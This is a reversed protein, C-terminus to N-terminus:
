VISLWEHDIAFHNDLDSVQEAVENNQAPPSDTLADHFGDQAVQQTPKPIDAQHEAASALAEDMVFLPAILKEFPTESTEADSAAVTFDHLISWPGTSTSSIARVWVRYDSATLATAPTFSTSILGTERIVNATNTTQNNVQMEYAVANTVPQWTFTPTTDSTTGRPTLLKTRANTNFQTPTSWAGIGNASVPRISWTWDSNALPTSPTWTTGTIATEFIATTGSHLYLEYSSAGSTPQWSFLVPTTNFTPSAPGIPTTLLATTTTNVSFQVSSGWVPSGDPLTTRIWVKYEGNDLTRSRISNSTIGTDRYLVGPTGVKTVYVEYFAANPVESWILTPINDTTVSNRAPSTLKTRGGTSFESPDSWPGLYDTGNVLRIPRVWWKYDNRALPTSPTLSVTSGNGVPTVTSVVPSGPVNIFVQYGTAGRVKNWTLTPQSDTTSGIPFLQPKVNVIFTHGQDQKKLVSNPMNAEVFVRYRAFELDQPIVVSTQSASVNLQTFVNGGFGAINVYVNYSLAGSVPTWSVTPRLTTIAGVPGAVIFATTTDDDITVVDLTKDALSDYANDSAPDDVSLTVMTTQNGDVNSDNVGNVNVTQPTNWNASTFTLATKDVTAETVDGSRVNIVVNSAPQTDLVVTFTETSGAETVTPAVSGPTVTFGPLRQLFTLVVDNGSGGAYSIRFQRGVAVFTAGEALTQGGFNFTGTIASTSAILNVITFTDNVAPTYTGLNLQLDANGLNVTRSDGFIRVQDYETAAPGSIDFTALVNKPFAVDVNAFEVVDPGAEGTLVAGPSDSNLTDRSGGGLIQDDGGAGLIYDIGDGGRLVNIGADGIIANGNAGGAVNEIDDSLTLQLNNGTDVTQQAGVTRLDIGVTTFDTPSFDLTDTGENANETITDSGIIDDVDFVYVDDGPGGASTDDGLGGILTDNAPGGTLRDNGGEGNVTLALTGNEGALIDNGEGLNVTLNQLAATLGSLDQPRVTDIGDGSNLTLGTVNRAIVTSGGITAVELSGVATTSNRIFVEEDGTSGNVILTNSGTGADIDVLRSPATVEVSDDGGTSRVLIDGTFASLPVTVTHTGTGTAGAVDTTLKQQADSIVVDTSTTTIVFANSQGIASIDELILDNGALEINFNTNFAVFSTAATIGSSESTSQFRQSLATVSSGTVEAIWSSYSTVRTNYAFDGLSLAQHTGGSAVSTLYYTGDQVVFQPSGSDGPVTTAEDASDYVWTVLNRSLGDVATTGSRKTGFAEDGPHPGFGVLTLESGTQLRGQWLEVAAVDVVPRNLKLIALDNGDDTGLFGYSYDPHVTVQDLGYSTGGVTFKLTSIDKGDVLHAATLVYESGILTGGGHSRGNTSIVGVADFGTTVESNGATAEGDLWQRILDAQADEASRSDSTEQTGYRIFYEDSSAFHNVLWERGNDQLLRAFDVVEFQGGNRRLLTAILEEAVISSAEDSAHLANVIESRPVGDELLDVEIELESDTPLRGFLDEFMATVFLDYSDGGRSSFYEDSAMVAPLVEDLSPVDGFSISDSENWSDLEETTASRNLLREYVGSIYADRYERDAQLTQVANIRNIQFEQENEFSDLETQTANRGLTDRYLQAIFADSPNDTVVGNVRIDISETLHAPDPLNLIPNFGAITFAFAGEGDVNLAPIFAASRLQELTYVGDIEAVTGDSFQVDGLGQDPVATVTYVLSPEKDSPPAYDINELGLSGAIVNELMTSETPPAVIQTPPNNLSAVTLTVAPAEGDLAGAQMMIHIVRPDTTPAESVNEYTISRIVAEYEALSARGTLLLQGLEVDFEGDISTPTDDPDTSGTDDRFPTFELFDEGAVYGEISIAAGDLMVTGRGEAAAADQQTIAFTGAVVIAAGGENFTQETVDIGITPAVYETDVSILLSAPDSVKTGDQIQLELQRLGPIPNTRTNMYQISRLASEYNAVFTTGRLTLMGTAEDFTGTIGHQPTYILRDQDAQYDWSFAVTAGTLLTNGKYMVAIGADIVESSRGHKYVLTEFGTEVVPLAEAQVTMTQTTGKTFGDHITFSITRAVGDRVMSRNSYTVQQLMYEYWDVPVEGTISLVGTMLDYSSDMGVPLGEVRLFDDGPMFNGTIAVDVGLLTDVVMDNDILTLNPALVFNGDDNSATVASTPLGGLTVGQLSTSASVVLLRQHATASSNMANGDSATISIERIGPTASTSTNRYKVRLLAASYDAASATGNLQLRGLLGNFTGTIGDAVEYSLVDEGQQYTTADLTVTLSELTPSDSDRVTISPLLGIDAGSGAIYTEGMGAEVIPAQNVATIRVKVGAKGINSSRDGLKVTLMREGTGNSCFSVLGIAQRYQDIRGFGTLHLVGKVADFSAEIGLEQQDLINLELVDKGAEFGGIAITASNIYGSAASSIQVDELLVAHGSGQEYSVPMFDVGDASGVTLARPKLTTSATLREIYFEPYRNVSVSFTDEFFANEIPEYTLGDLVNNINAATGILTVSGTGDGTVEVNDFVTTTVTTSTGNLLSDTLGQADESTVKGDGNVDYFGSGGLSSRQMPLTGDDGQMADMNLMTIIQLADSVSTEGDDDVDNPDGINQWPTAKQPDLTLFGNGTHLTVVLEADADHVALPDTVTVANGTNDSFVLPQNAGFTQETPLAITPTLNPPTIAASYSTYVPINSGDSILGYVYLKQNPDYPVSAFTAMDDWDFTQLGDQFALGGAILHGNFGSDVTDVFLDITTNEPLQSTGTYTITAGAGNMDATLSDISLEPAPVETFADLADFNGESLPVLFDLDRAGPLYFGFRKTFLAKAYGDVRGAFNVTVEFEALTVDGSVRVYSNERRQTPRIQLYIGFNGLSEGGILPVPDPVYFGLNANLTINFDRDMKFSMNGRFIGGPYLSFSASVDVVEKGKFFITISGSGEGMIGELLDVDGRIIMRDKNIDISGEITVLARTQGFIKVSPGVTGTVKAKIQFNDLDDLNDIEGEISNLFVVPPHGLPIGPSREVKFGIKKLRNNKVVVEAGVTLGAPLTIEGSGSITTNGQADVEYIFGLDRIELTGFTVDQVRLELGKIQVEGTSTNILLGQGPFAAKATFKGAVTVTLGGTIALRNYSRTYVVRLNEPTANIGFLNISGNLEIDLHELEGNKIVLGPTDPAGLTVSFNDLFRQGGRAPTSLAVTGFFGYEQKARDYSFGANQVDVELGFLKFDASLSAQVSQVQGDKIVLGPTGGHGLNIKINVPGSAAQFAFDAEGTIRLEKSAPLYSMTGSASIEVGGVTFTGSLTGSIEQIAGTQINVVLGNTGGSGLAVTILAGGVDVTKSGTFTVIDGAVSRVLGKTPFTVGSAVVDVVPPTFNTLEWTGNKISLQANKPDGGITVDALGLYKGTGRFVYRREKESYTARLNGDQFVINQVTTGELDFRTGKGVALGGNKLHLPITVQAQTKIDGVQFDTKGNTTYTFHSESNKDTNPYRIAGGNNKLSVGSIPIALSTRLTPNSNGLQLGAGGLHFFEDKNNNTPNVAVAKGEVQITTGQNIGFNVNEGLAWSGSQLEMSLGQTSIQLGGAAFSGQILFAPFPASGASLATITAAPSSNVWNATGSHQFGQRHAYTSQMRVNRFRQGYIDFDGIRYWFTSQGSSGLSLMLGPNANTGLDFPTSVGPSYTNGSYLIERSLSATGAGYVALSQSNADYSADISKGSARVFQMEPRNGPRAIDFRKVPVTFDSVKGNAISIGNTSLDPAVRFAELYQFPKQVLLQSKGTVAIEGKAPLFEAWMFDASQTGQNTISAKGNLFRFTSLPVKFSSIAGNQVTVSTGVRTDSDGPKADVGFGVEGLDVTGSKATFPGHITATNNTENLLLLGPRTQGALQIESVEFNPTADRTRSEFTVRYSTYFKNNTAFKHTYWESRSTPILGSIWSSNIAEWPGNPSHSGAITLFIPDNGPNATSTKIRLEDIATFRTLSASPTVIVGSGIPGSWISDTGDIANSAPMGALTAGGVTVAPDGPSFLDTRSISQPKKTFSVGASEFTLLDIGSPTNLNGNTITLPPAVGSGFGVEMRGADLITNAKGEFSFERKALSYSATMTQAEFKMGVLDFNTPAPNGKKDSSSPRFALAGDEVAATIKLASVALQNARAFAVGAGGLADFRLTGNLSVTDLQAPVQGLLEMENFVLQTTSRAKPLTVRYSTYATSNSFQVVPGIAQVPNTRNPISPDGASILQWPGNASSAGELKYEVPDYQGYDNRSTFRIGNVLTQGVSPTVVFAFNSTVADASIGDSLNNDFLRSPGYTISNYRGTYIQGGGEFKVTDSPGTIDRIPKGFTLISPTFAEKDSLRFTNAQKENIAYGTGSTLSKVPILIRQNPDGDVVGSMLDISRGQGITSILGTTSFVSAGATAQAIRAGARMQLLPVFTTGGAPIQGIAVSGSSEFDNPRSADFSLLEVESVQVQTTSSGKVTPFTLRYSTYATSNNFTITPGATKRGSPLNVSGEAILTFPGSASTGGELKYSVPDRDPVDDATTLRFAAVTSSGSAPTITLGPASTWSDQFYKTDPNGDLANAPQTHGAVNGGGVAVIADGAATFKTLPRNFNGTSVFRVGDVDVINPATAVVTEVAGIDIGDGDVRPQNRQDVIVPTRFYRADGADLAPSGAILSHTLAGGGNDKLTTDLVTNIDIVGSGGNGLQNGNTGHTLGLTVSSNGMLNNSSDKHLNAGGTMDDATGNARTNGALISNFLTAAVKPPYSIAGGDGSGNADADARNNTLTSSSITLRGGDAGIAGGWHNARNGSLTSNVIDLTGSTLQIAGSKGTAFSDKVTTGILELGGQNVIAGGDGTARGNTVTLSSLAAFVGPKVTFIRSADNGSISVPGKITTRNSAGTESLVLEGGTLTISTVGSAFTITDAQKNANATAIAERLSGAGSDANSTVQIASLLQRAELAEQQAALPHKKAKNRRRNAANRKSSQAALNNKLSDLSKQFSPIM